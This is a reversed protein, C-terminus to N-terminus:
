LPLHQPASVARPAEAAPAGLPTSFHVCRWGLLLAASLCLLATVAMLAGPWRDATLQVLLGIVAITGLLAPWVRACGDPWIDARLSAVIIWAPLVLATLDHLYLHPAVLIALFIACAWYLDTRMDWAPARFALRARWGVWLLAALTGFSLLATVTDVLQGTGGWFLNVVVGRWNPMLAPFILTYGDWHNIAVLFRVYRLPWLVGLFPMAAISATALTGACTAVARWHGLLLLMPGIVLLLQPKIAVLALAAGARGWRGRRLAVFTGCLGLTVLPASQGLWLAEHIANYSCCGLLLLLRTPGDLPLARALLALSGIFALVSLASWAFYLTGYPLGGVPVFLLAEFPPHLYPLLTNAPLTLYPALVVAQAARQAAIDYLQAGAGARLMQAATLTPTFDIGRAYVDPGGRAEIAKAWILLQLAILVVLLLAGGVARPTLSHVPAYGAAAARRTGAATLPPM